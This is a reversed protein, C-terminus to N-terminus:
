DFQLVEPGLQQEQLLWPQGGPPVEAERVPEPVGEGTAEEEPGKLGPNGPQCLKECAYRIWKSHM